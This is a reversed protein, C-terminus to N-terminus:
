KFLARGIRVETSGEEVAIEFDNTMGMSLKKLDHKEALERLGAFVPRTSELDDALPAMTMLGEVKLNSMSAIRDIADPLEGPTFGGKTAEGSVNVELLVPLVKDAEGCARDLSEALAIRNVSDVRDYLSVVDRVKRRQIHGIMHWVVSERVAEIKARAEETRNEGLDTCGLDVLVKTEDVGVSKTVPLLRIDGPNRGVRAAASEIRDRIHRLNEAIMERTSQLPLYGGIV